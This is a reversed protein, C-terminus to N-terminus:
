KQGDGSITFRGHKLGFIRHQSSTTVVIQNAPAKQLHPNGLVSKVFATLPKLM